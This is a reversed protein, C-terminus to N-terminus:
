GSRALVATPGLADLAGLCLIEARIRLPNGSALNAALAFVVGHARGCSLSAPHATTPAASAAGASAPRQM